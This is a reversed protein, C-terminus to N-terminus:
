HWPPHRGRDMEVGMPRGFHCDAHTARGIRDHTASGVGISGPSASSWCASAPSVLLHNPGALAGQTREM